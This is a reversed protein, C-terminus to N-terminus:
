NNDYADQFEEETFISQHKVMDKIDYLWGCSDEHEWDSTFRVGNQYIIKRSEIIFEYVNWQLYNDLAEIESNMYELAMQEHTKWDKPVIWEKNYKDISVYIYWLHWSDWRCWFPTTRVSLWSHDMLYVRHYYIDDITLWKDKLHEEFAEDISECDSPLEEDWSFNRHATVLTWINDWERPSESMENNMVILNYEIWDIIKKIM